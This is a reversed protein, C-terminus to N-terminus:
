CHSHGCLVLDVGNAELIPLFNQRMEILQSETDSNHSGKTYPPHHWFAIVWDLTTATLDSRLWNAMAGNTARDATMSDLCIFHINAYDFSYYHESGSAVGGAEGNKPLTFISFYPYSDNFVTSQATDHNGLTPWVVTNELVTPYMNFVATQYESDLGTNYANDGLMLLLDTGRAGTFALYADRVSAASANATGSDGLVWVRTSKATGASPPTTFFFNPDGVSLGSTTGISYFYKTNPSLGAVTLAHESILTFDDATFNLNALDTGFRVRSDTSIDTRWRVMASTPTGMQLYPGRTVSPTTSATLELEFSIDSSTANAQHIEVALVNNGAVLNSAPVSSPYFTSEQPAGLASSALTTYSITGSPMNSRFVEVGNLYVVAGDDRLLNITLGAYISPDPVNFARRFYTTIYKSTSSPGFSVVTAEDGDGYGLQAPGSAWSSDNFSSARWATGQNSGNDLYKWISGTPVLTDVALCSAAIVLLSLWSVFIKLSPRSRM